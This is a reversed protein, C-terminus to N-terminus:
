PQVEPQEMEELQEKRQMETHLAQYLSSSQMLSQHNGTECIRGQDMLYITDARHLAAVRQCVMVMTPRDPRDLLANLIHAETRADVSSFIDDLLLIRPNVVLARALAARQRQGGSLTIGREGILTEMGQPMGEVEEDFAANRAAEWACAEDEDPQGYLLNELLPRSFLLSEQPTMTLHQRLQAEPVHALDVGDLFLSGQPIPYTRSLCRLLTSKGSGIRGALGVFHGHPVTLTIDHLTQVAAPETGDGAATTVAHSPAAEKSRPAIRRDQQYFFNLHRIEIAYPTTPEPHLAQQPHDANSPTIDLVESLRDIAALGRQMVTLIWGLAVTPQIMLTLYGTFAVFDGVTLNGQVVGPGGVALIIWAGLGGSFLMLPQFMGQLRAHDQQTAYLKDTEEYFRQNWADERAYTRIVGMGAVSEQVFATLGGFRDAVMRSYRYLRKTLQRAAIVVFPLPLLAMLTLWPNLWLMAPLVLIYVLSANTLQLFGPGMFMRLATIDGIGRSVLDGTRAHDFLPAELDQLQAHYLNRMDREVERGIRFVHTRARIRLLATLVALLALLLAYTKVDTMGEGRQLTDIALKMLYPILAASANTAILLLFGWVFARRYRQYHPLLHRIRHLFRGIPTLILNM